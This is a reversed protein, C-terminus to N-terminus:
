RLKPNIQKQVPKRYCKESKRMITIKRNSFKNIEQRVQDRSFRAFTTRPYKLIADVQM